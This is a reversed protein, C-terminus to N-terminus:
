VDQAKEKPDYGGSACSCGGCIGHRVRCRRRRQAVLCPSSGSAQDRCPHKASGYVRRAAAASRGVLNCGAFPVLPTLLDILRPDLRILYYCTQLPLFMYMCLSMDHCGYIHVHLCVCRQMNLTRTRKHTDTHTTTRRTQTRTRTDARPCTLTLHHMHTQPHRSTHTHRRTDAHMHPLTHTHTHSHTHKHARPQTHRHTQTYARTHTHTHTHTHAFTIHTAPGHYRTHPDVHTRSCM